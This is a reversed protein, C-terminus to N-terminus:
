QEMYETILGVPTDFYCWRKGQFVAGTTMRGGLESMAKVRADWDPVTFCLHHLGEGKTKLFDYWIGRDDLPQILEIQIPGFDAFAITHKFQGGALIIDKPPEYEEIVTWSDVGWIDSLFKISRSIDKAVLGIHTLKPVTASNNAQM